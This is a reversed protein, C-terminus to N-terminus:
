GSLIAGTVTTWPAGNSLSNATELSYSSAWAPWSLVVNAGIAKEVQLSPGALSIAFVVGAANSGGGSACGYFRGEAGQILNDIPFAGDSNTGAGNLESFQYLLTFNEGNTKVSFLTGSGNTGGQSCVGYLKGDPAELPVGIPVAGDFGDFCHFAAFAKGLS